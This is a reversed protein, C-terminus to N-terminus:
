LQPGQGEKTDVGLALNLKDGGRAMDLWVMYHSM